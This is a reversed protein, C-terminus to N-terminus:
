PASVAFFESDAPPLPTAQQPLRGIRPGRTPNSLYRSKEFRVARLGPQAGGGSTYVALDFWGNHHDPMRYIPLKSVTMRGISHWGTATETFVFTTCGGSGCYNRDYLHVIAEQRHDDNLDSFTIAYSAGEAFGDPGLLARVAEVVDPTRADNQASAASAVLAALLAAATGARIM